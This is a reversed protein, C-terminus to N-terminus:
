INHEWLFVTNYQKCCCCKCCKRVTNKIQLLLVFMLVQWKKAKYTSVTWFQYYCRPVDRDKHIRIVPLFLITFLKQILVSLSREGERFGRCKQLQGRWPPLPLASKRSSVCTPPSLPPASGVEDHTGKGLIWRTSELLLFAPLTVWAQYCRPRSNRFVALM